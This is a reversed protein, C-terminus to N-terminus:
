VYLYVFIYKNWLLLSNIVKKNQVTRKFFGKCSECTLLGYHYGSVKDGCVPCPEDLSANVGTSAGNSTNFSLQRCNGASGGGFGGLTYANSSNFNNSSHNINPRSLLAAASAEAAAAQMLVEIM